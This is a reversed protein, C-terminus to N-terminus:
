SARPRRLWATALESRNRFGTVEFIRSVYKKISLESLFLQAAIEANSLGESVLAAVDNQRPTLGVFADTSAAAASVTVSRARLQRALLRIAILDADDWVGDADFMGLLAEGDALTLHIASACAIGHPVLYDVVYSHQPRPLRALEDMTAFGRTTLMTRAEPLAFIDKDRWREQYVPLLSATAGTLLPAPDDFITSFTRGHFFTMNGVGFASAVADALGVRFSPGDDLEECRELVSLVARMQRASLVEHAQTTM